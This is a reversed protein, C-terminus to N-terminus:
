KGEDVFWRLVKSICNYYVPEFSDQPNGLVRAIENVACDFEAHRGGEHVDSGICTFRDGNHAYVHKEWCTKGDAYETWQMEISVFKM